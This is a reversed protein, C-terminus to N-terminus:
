PMEVLARYFWSIGPTPNSDLYEVTGDPGLSTTYIATWSAIDGCSQITVVQGPEGFVQILWGPADQAPKLALRPAPWV